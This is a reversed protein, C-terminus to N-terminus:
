LDLIGGEALQLEDLASWQSQNLSTQNQEKM